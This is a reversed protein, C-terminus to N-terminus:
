EKGKKAKLADVARQIKYADHPAGFEKCSMTDVKIKWIKVNKVAPDSYKFPKDSYNEMLINLAETKQDFDEVFEVIGNAIVSKSKMRYSCAVESHQFALEHDTSFTVCVHNNRNLIDIIRGEPASHLYITQDRYGFNMPLVYPKNELDVVGVFCVDCKLIIAEIVENDTHNITQM